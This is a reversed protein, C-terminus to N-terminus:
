TKLNQTVNKFTKEMDVDCFFFNHNRQTSEHSQNKNHVM